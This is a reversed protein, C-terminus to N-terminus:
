SDHKEFFILETTEVAAGKSTAAEGTKASMTGETAGPGSTLWEPRGGFVVVGATTGVDAAVLWALLAVAVYALHRLPASLGRLRGLELRIPL